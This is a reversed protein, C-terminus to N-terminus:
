ATRIYGFEANNFDTELWAVGTAPNLSYPAVLYLYTTNPAFDSGQYDAGGSRVVPAVTCTGADSKRAAVSLQCGYFVAGPVPADQVAVTDKNGITDTSTYDTDDNVTPDDICQYNAGASPTWQTTAGAGSPFRADVRCDGLFDNQPASGSGDLVYVDDYQTSASPSATGIRASDWGATGSNATNIGTLTLVTIENVRCVISGATPHIVAKLELYYFSNITLQGTTATGLLTSGRYAAVFGSANVSLFCQTTGAQVFGMLINLSSTSFANSKMAAGIIGTNGSVPLVRTFVGNPSVGFSIAGSGRRGGAPSITPSGSQSQYKYLINATAYYDFSDCFLLAM